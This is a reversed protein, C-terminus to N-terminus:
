EYNKPRFALTYNTLASKLFSQPKIQMFQHEFLGPEENTIILGSSQTEILYGDTYSSYVVSGSTPRTSQPNQVSTLLISFTQGAGISQLRRRYQPLLLTITIETM